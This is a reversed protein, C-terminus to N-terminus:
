EISPLRDTMATYKLYNSYVFSVKQCFRTKQSDESNNLESQVM